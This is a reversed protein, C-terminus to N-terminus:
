FENKEEYSSRINVRKTESTHNQDNTYNPVAAEKESFNKKKSLVNFLYIIIIISARENGNECASMKKKYEKRVEKLVYFM